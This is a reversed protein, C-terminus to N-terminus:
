TVALSRASYITPRSPLLPALSQQAALEGAVIAERLKEAVEDNAELARAEDDGIAVVFRMQEVRAVKGRVREDEAVLEPDMRALSSLDPTSGKVLLDRLERLVV